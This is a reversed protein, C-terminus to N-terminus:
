TSPRNNILYNDIIKRSIKGAGKSNELIVSIAISPKNIPAFGMFWSHDDYKYKKKNFNKQSLTLMQVTGTKGAILYNKMKYISHATGKKSSITKEMFSIINYWHYKNIRNVNLNTKFINKHEKKLLTPAIIKGKNSIIMSIKAIQIPTVMLYGQGIGISLTEGKYWKEGKKIYKWYTSPVLGKKELPLNVYTKKGLGFKYFIQFLNNIGLRYSLNYFYTSCSQSIANELNIWGRGLRNWDRYLRYDNKLKYWGADYFLTKCSVYNKDLAYLAIVPKITSGPPYQGSISRNFLPNKSSDNFSKIEKKINSLFMNPNFSPNSLITLVEGTQPNIAIVSGIKDNMINYSIKQLKNDLSLHLNKGSKPSIKTITKIIQNKSDIELNKYGIFGHLQKEYKKEIGTKGILYSSKYNNKDLKKLEKKNIPGIFGIIHSYISNHPYNRILRAIIKVGPLHYKELSLKSVQVMNLNTKIPISHFYFKYKFIKKFYKIDKKSLYIIKSIKKLTLNINKIQVPNIELNFIPINNALLINNRDYILGRDPILPYIKIQNNFSFIKYTKHQYVQLYSIRFLLFFFLIVIMLISIIVRSVFIKHEKFSDKIFSLFIM